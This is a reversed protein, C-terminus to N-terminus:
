VMVNTNQKIRHNYDTKILDTLFKKIETEYTIAPYRTDVGHKQAFSYATSFVNNLALCPNYDIYRDYIAINFIHNLHGIIRHITELRSKSPNDTNWLSRLIEYLDSYKILGIDTNEFKPM